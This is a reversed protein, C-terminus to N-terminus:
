RLIWLVDDDDDHKILIVCCVHIFCLHVFLLYLHCNCLFFVGTLLDVVNFTCRPLVYSYDSNRLNYDVTKKSPLLPNLCHLPSHM